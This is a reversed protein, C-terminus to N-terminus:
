NGIPESIHGFVRRLREVLEGPLPGKAINRANEELENIDLTGNMVSTVPSTFAVYRYAAEILSGARGDGALWGLPDNGAVEAADVLGRTVLDRIVERLRDPQSFVKRVTFVNVVGLNKERCVPFVHRQASQNILNHAAMVVDVRDLPLLAQLWEHAGDSRSQESSGVYRIKGEQKLRELEPLHEDRVVELHEPGSVAILMVDITEVQLRRLSAEVSPAVDDRRMVSVSAGDGTALAIKTSIVLEQRPLGQLARGLISESDMYGPSTDFYNIGLDFARHLLRRMEDETRSSKQGLPDLGGTGMGMMSVRLGTRGLTRYEM